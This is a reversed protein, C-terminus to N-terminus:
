HTPPFHSHGNVDGSLSGRQCYLRLSLREVPLLYLPQLNRYFPAVRRSTDGGLGRTFAAGDAKRAASGVLGRPRAEPRVPDGSEAPYRLTSPARKSLSCPPQSFFTQFLLVNTNICHMAGASGLSPVPMYSPSM